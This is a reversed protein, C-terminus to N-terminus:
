CGRKGLNRRLDAFRRREGDRPRGERFWHAGLGDRDASALSGGANMIAGALVFMPIAILSFSTAGRYMEIAVSILNELGGSAVGIVASIALAIAIPVNILIMALMALFMVLLLM